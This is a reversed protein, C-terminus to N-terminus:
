TGGVAPSRGTAGPLPQGTSRGKSNNASPNPTRSLAPRQDKKGTTALLGATYESLWGLRRRRDPCPLNRRRRLHDRLLRRMRRVSRPHLGPRELPGPRVDRLSRHRRLHRTSRSPLNAAGWIIAAGWLVGTLNAPITKLLGDRKGGAAFFCAWSLFGVWTILGFPTSFQTWLGALIGATIGITILPKM